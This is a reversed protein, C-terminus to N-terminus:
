QKLINSLELKLSNLNFPKELFGCCGRDLLSSVKFDETFGSILLIRVQNDIKRLKTYAKEGNYPMQMDLIVLNIQDKMLSYAEVAAKGNRVAYVDYGIAALMKELVDLCAEDDDAILILPKKPDNNIVTIMFLAGNKRLPMFRVVPYKLM